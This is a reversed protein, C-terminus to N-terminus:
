SSPPTVGEHRRIITLGLGKPPADQIPHYFAGWNWGQPSPKSHDWAFPLFHIIFDGQKANVTEVTVATKSAAFVADFKPANGPVSYDKIRIKLSVGFPRGNSSKADMIAQAVEAYSNAHADFSIDAYGSKPTLAEIKNFSVVQKLSATIRAVDDATTVNTIYFSDTAPHPVFKRTPANDAAFLAPALLGFLVASLLKM